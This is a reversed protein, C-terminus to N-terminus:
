HGHPDLCVGSSLLCGWRVTLYGVTIDKRTIKKWLNILSIIEIPCSNGSLAILCSALLNDQFAIYHDVFIYFVNMPWRLSISTVGTLKLKELLVFAYLNRLWSWLLSGLILCMSALAQYIHSICLDLGWFIGNHRPQNVLATVCLVM